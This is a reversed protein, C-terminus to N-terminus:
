LIYIICVRCCLTLTPDVRTWCDLTRHYVVFSVEIAADQRWRRFARVKRQQKMHKKLEFLMEFPVLNLVPVRTIQRWRRVAAVFQGRRDEKRRRVARGWRYLGAAKRAGNQQLLGAYLSVLALGRPTAMGMGALGMGAQQAGRGFMPAEHYGPRVIKGGLRQQGSNQPAQRPPPTPFASLPDKENQNLREKNGSNQNQADRAPPNQPGEETTLWQEVEEVNDVEESLSRPPRSEPGARGIRRLLAAQDM